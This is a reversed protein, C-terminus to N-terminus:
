QLENKREPSAKPHLRVSRTRDLLRASSRESRVLDVDITLVGHESCAIEDPIDPWDAMFRAGNAHTRFLAHLGSPSRWRGESTLRAFIKSRHEPDASEGACRIEVDIPEGWHATIRKAM